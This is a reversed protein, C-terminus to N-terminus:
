WRECLFSEACTHARACPGHQQTLTGGKRLAAAPALSYILSHLRNASCPPSLPKFLPDDDTLPKLSHLAPPCAVSRMKYLPRVPSTGLDFPHLACMVAM